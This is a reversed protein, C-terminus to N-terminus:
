TIPGSQRSCFRDSKLRHNTRPFYRDPPDRLYLGPDRPRETVMETRQEVTQQVM